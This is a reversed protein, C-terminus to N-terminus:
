VEIRKSIRTICDVLMDNIQDLQALMHLAAKRLMPDDMSALVFLNPHDFLERNSISLNLLMENAMKYDIAEKM